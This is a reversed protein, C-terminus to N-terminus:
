MADKGKGLWDGVRWALPSGDGDLEVGQFTMAHTFSTEHYDFMEARTMSLDVDFLGEFDMTDCALVGPFDELNRGFQQMVDCAMYCPVGAKLSAIAAQEVVTPEVNLFRWRDGGVVTDM